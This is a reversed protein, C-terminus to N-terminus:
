SQLVDLPTRDALRGAVAIGLGALRTLESVVGMVTRKDAETVEVLLDVEDRLEPGAHTDDLVELRLLHATLIAVATGTYQNMEPVTPRTNWESEDPPYETM